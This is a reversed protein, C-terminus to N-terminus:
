QASSAPWSPTTSYGSGYFQKLNTAPWPVAPNYGVPASVHIDANKGSYGRVAIKRVSPVIHAPIDGILAATIQAPPNAPIPLTILHLHFLCICHFLFTGNYTYGKSTTHM